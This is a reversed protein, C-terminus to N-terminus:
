YRDLELLVQALFNGSSIVAGSGSQGGQFNAGKEELTIVYEIGQGLGLTFHVWLNCERGLEWAKAWGDNSLLFLVGRTDNESLVLYSTGLPLALRKNVLHAGSTALGM